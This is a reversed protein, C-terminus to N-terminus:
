KFVDLNPPYRRPRKVEYDYLLKGLNKMFPFGISDYDYKDDNLVEDANCYIRASVMFEIKKDFDVIYAIDSLGGYADGVKNFIRIAKPLEGKESGYLLFKVYAPWYDATDYSPYSSEFPLQSLCQRLFTYDETSLNFPQQPPVATPFLVSKLIQTLDNLCIRNKTSFDMPEQILVNNKYYAKGMVDTRPAYNLTNVQAAQEYVIKGWPSLFKIPNTHQNEEAPLTVSLRHRISAQTYGKAQLQDNIYRPGLFEYLRNFADNDSVLFIKKIYQAISPKGDPTTPDNYVATQLPRAVETIMTTNKNLGEIKLENLKQLALIAIPLKVTSAPYFYDAPTYNYYYTKFVPNNNAQRNIQTYIIQVKWEKKHLLVSDFLAPASKLLNELLTDTQTSDTLVTSITSPQAQLNSMPFIATFFVLTALIYFFILRKNM